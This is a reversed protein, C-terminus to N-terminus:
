LGVTQTKKKIYSVLNWVCVYSHLAFSFSLYKKDRVKNFVYPVCHCWKEIYDGNHEM